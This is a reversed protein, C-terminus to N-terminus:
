VAGAEERDQLWHVFDALDQLVAAAGARRLEAETFSPGRVAVAEIGAARAAAMDYPSDGVMVVRELPPWGLLALALRVPEPDPKHRTTSDADVVADFAGQLGLVRLGRWLLPRRKSSVVALRLGAARLQEVTEVAGPCPRVATDHHTAQHARYTSLLRELTEAELEPFLERFQDELLRGFYPYLKRDDVDRGLVAKLAYHTSERVLAGSDLITGDFDFLVADKRWTTEAM